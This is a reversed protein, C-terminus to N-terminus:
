VHFDTEGVRPGTIVARTLRNPSLTVEDGRRLDALDEALQEPKPGDGHPLRYALRARDNDCLKSRTAAREHGIRHASPAAHRFKELADRDCQDLRAWAQPLGLARAEAVGSGREVPVVADVIQGFPREEDNGVLEHVGQRHPLQHPLTVDPALAADGDVAVALEDKGRSLREFIGVQRLRRTRDVSGVARDELSPRGNAREKSRQSRARRYRWDGRQEDIVSVPLGAQAIRQLGDSTVFIGIRKSRWALDVEGRM